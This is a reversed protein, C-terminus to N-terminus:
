GLAARPGVTLHVRRDAVAGADAALLIDASISLVGRRAVLCPRRGHRHRVPGREGVSGGDRWRRLKETEHKIETQKKRLDAVISRRATRGGSREPKRIRGPFNSKGRSLAGM